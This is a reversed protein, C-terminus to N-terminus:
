ENGKHYSVLLSEMGDLSGDLAIQTLWQDLQRKRDGEEALDLSDDGLLQAGQSTPSGAVLQLGYLNLTRAIGHGTLFHMSKPRPVLQNSIGAFNALPDLVKDDVLTTLMAEMTEYLDPLSIRVIDDVTWRDPNRKSLQNTARIVVDLTLQLLKPPEIGFTPSDINVICEVAHFEEPAFNEVSQWSFRVTRSRNLGDKRFPNIGSIDLDSTWKVLRNRIPSQNLADMLERVSKESFPRGATTPSIPFTMGTRIYIDIEPNEHQFIPAQIYSNQAMSVISEESFLLKIRVQDAPDNRDHFRVLVRGNMVIPRPSLEPFVRIVAIYRIKEGPVLLSLIEPVFPPDLQDRCVNVIRSIEKDSIGVIRDPGPQDKVGVIVLGGRNNAFAAISEVIRNTFAEKYELSGGETLHQSILDKVRELTVEDPPCSLLYAINTMSSFLDKRHCISALTLGKKIVSM